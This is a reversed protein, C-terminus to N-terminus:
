DCGQSATHVFRPDQLLTLDPLAGQADALLALGRLTGVDVMKAVGLAFAMLREFPELQDAELTVPLIVRVVGEQGRFLLALSGGLFSGLLWGLWGTFMAATCICFMHMLPDADPEPKVSLPM